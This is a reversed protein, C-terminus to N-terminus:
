YKVFIYTKLQRKFTDLSLETDRLSDPLSNWTSPGAVSFRRHGFSNLRYHPVVLKRQTASRLHQHGTVEATLTCNDMLYPPATGHLCRYMLVALKFRVRDTVDLWHLEDHMLQSLGSDYKRTDTVVRAASNMVRQLKDTIVRPSEALVANCYDVRSTVFAQVLTKASGVDLSQRVRRIQRLHFFCTASVASVHKELSLDSSMIVGLVRVHGSPQITDSGLKIAPGVRLDVCGKVREPTPLNFVSKDPQPQCTISHSTMHCTVRRVHLKAIPKEYVDRKLQIQTYPRHLTSVTNLHSHSLPPTCHIYKHQMSHLFTRRIM